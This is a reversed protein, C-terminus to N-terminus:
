WDRSSRERKRRTSRARFVERYTPRSHAEHAQLEAYAARIDAIINHIRSRPLRFVRSLLRESLGGEAAAAIVYDRECRELQGPTM